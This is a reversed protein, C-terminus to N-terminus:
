ATAPRRARTDTNVTAPQVPARRAREPRARPPPRTLAVVRRAGTAARGRSASAPAPEGLSRRTAKKARAINAAPWQAVSTAWGGTPRTTPTTAIAVAAPPARTASRDVRSDGRATCAAAATTTSAAIANPSTTAPSGDRSRMGPCHPSSRPLTSSPIEPM